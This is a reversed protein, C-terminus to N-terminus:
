HNKPLTPVYLRSHCHIRSPLSCRISLRWIRRSAHRAVAFTLSSRIPYSCFMCDYDKGTAVSKGLLVSVICMWFVYPSQTVVHRLLNCDTALASLVTTDSIPSVHDGAVSGSLIGAITAYFIVGDGNSTEYTPVTLLPFMIAM